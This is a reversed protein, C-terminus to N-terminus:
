AQMAALSEQITPATGQEVDRRRRQHFASLVANARSLSEIRQVYAELRAGPIAFIAVDETLVDLYARAGCCGLSLAARGTNMVQPIVACAPRGMAPPIQDEVQQAAEALILTQNANVFLLVVDPPLASDALPGYVICRPRSALVPIAAVDEPRVYDLDAFVKLADMLDAQQAPSPELNHTHVGIACLAHGSAVTAFAGTAADEWFRCGAPVRGAHQPIGAPVSEAFTIAVPPQQLHLSATLASSLQAYKSKQPMVENASRM